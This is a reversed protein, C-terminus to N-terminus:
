AASDPIGSGDEAVDEYSAEEATAEDGQGGDKSTQQINDNGNDGQPTTNFQVPEFGEPFSGASYQRDPLSIADEPNRAKPLQGAAARGARIKYNLEVLEGHDVDDPAQRVYGTELDILNGQQDKFLDRFTKIDAADIDDEAMIRDHFKRVVDEMMEVQRMRSEVIQQIPIMKDPPMRQWEEKLAIQLEQSTMIEAADDADPPKGGFSMRYALSFDGIYTLWEALRQIQRLHPTDVSRHQLGNMGTAVPWHRLGCSGFPTWYVKRKTHLDVLIIPVVFDNSTEVYLPVESNLEEPNLPPTLFDLGLRVAEDRTYYAYTGKLKAHKRHGTVHITFPM